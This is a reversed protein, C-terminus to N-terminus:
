DSNKIDDPKTQVITKNSYASINDNITHNSSSEQNTHYHIKKENQNLNLDPLKNIHRYYISIADVAQQIQYKNLCIEYTIKDYKLNFFLMAPSEDFDFCPFIAISINYLM